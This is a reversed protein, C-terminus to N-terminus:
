SDSPNKADSQSTDQAVANMVRDRKVVNRGIVTAIVGLGALIVVFVTYQLAGGREGADEPKKGCNPRPLFNICESPDNELDYGFLPEETIDDDITASVEDTRISITDTTAAVSTAGFGVTGFSMTTFGFILAVLFLPRRKSTPVAVDDCEGSPHFLDHASVRCRDSVDVCTYEIANM